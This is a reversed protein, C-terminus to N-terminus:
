ENWSDFGGGAMSILVLECSELCAGLSDYAGYCLGYDPLAIEIV